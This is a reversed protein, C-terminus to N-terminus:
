VTLCVSMGSCASISVIHIFMCFICIRSVYQYVYFFLQILHDVCVQIRCGVTVHMNGIERVSVSFNELYTICICSSFGLAVTQLQIM